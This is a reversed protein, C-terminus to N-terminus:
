ARSANWEGVAAFDDHGHGPATHVIGTGADDRVHRGCLVYAVQLPQEGVDSSEALPKDFAVGELQQGTAAWDAEVTWHGAADGSAGGGGRALSECLSAALGQAVLYRAMVPGGAGRRRAVTVYTYDRHVALAVNAPLTWPTTTWAVA